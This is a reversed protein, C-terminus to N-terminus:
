SSTSGFGGEKRTGNRTKCLEQYEEDSIEKVIMEQRQVPILQGIPDGWQLVLDNALSAVDPIYQSVFIVQNEFGSDIVGYLSHLQKKAFTSSRPRLELWWGEPAFIRFGLPIKIYQGARIFTKDPLACSVDWGTDNSHARTPLFRKDHQTEKTLAFSFTPVMMKIMQAEPQRM